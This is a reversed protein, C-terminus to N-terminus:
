SGKENIASVGSDDKILSKYPVYEEDRSKFLESDPLGGAASGRWAKAAEHYETPWSLQVKGGEGRVEDIDLGVNFVRNFMVNLEEPDEIVETLYNRVTNGVDDDHDRQSSVNDAFIPPAKPGSAVTLFRYHFNIRPTCVFEKGKTRENEHDYVEYFKKPRM